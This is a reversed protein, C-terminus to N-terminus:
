TIFSDNYIKREQLLKMRANTMEPDIELAQKYYEIAKENDGLEAATVGLNYYVNPDNPNKKVMEQMLENYKEKNGMRYYVDAEAQLLAINDPNEAKADQIAEIAKEDQGEQIYILAINKAFFSSLTVWLNSNNWVM